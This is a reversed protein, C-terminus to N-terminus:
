TAAADDALPLSVAFAAGPEGDSRDQLRLTGHHKEVLTKTIWLGLGTGTGQKTTFFPEFITARLPEAIGPGQDQVRLHAQGSEAFSAVHIFSGPPSAELANVVLNSIIQRIEGRVGHLRLGPQLDTDFSVQASAARRSYLELTDEVSESLDFREASRLERYFGLTQRTIHAIQTIGDLASAATERIFPTADPAHEIIYLLNTLAELPNNIEHAIAASMRGATALRESQILASRTSQESAYLVCNHLALSARHALDAAVALDGETYERLEDLHFAITGLSREGARLPALLTRSDALVPSDGTFSQALLDDSPNGGAIREDAPEVRSAADDLYVTCRDAFTPTVAQQITGVTEQLSLSASFAPGVSALFRLTAETEAIRLLRRVLSTLEAPHVPQALYADAGGSLGAARLDPDSFSASIQLIPLFPYAVKLQRSLDYGNVDPLRVDVVALVLPRNVQALAEGGTGAEVVGFGELELIRRMAYRQEVTDDVYLIWPKQHHIM